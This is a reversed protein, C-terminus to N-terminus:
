KKGLHRSDAAITTLKAQLGSTLTLNEFLGLRINTQLEFQKIKRCNDVASYRRFIGHYMHTNIVVIHRVQDLATTEDQTSDAYVGRRWPEITQVSASRTLLPDTIISQM